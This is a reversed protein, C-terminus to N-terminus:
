VFLALLIQVGLIMEGNTVFTQAGNLHYWQLLQCTCCEGSLEVHAHEVEVLLTGMFMFNSFVDLFFFGDNVGGRGSDECVVLQNIEHLCTFYLFIYIYYLSSRSLPYLGGPWYISCQRFVVKDFSRYFRAYNSWIVYILQYHSCHVSCNQYCFTM